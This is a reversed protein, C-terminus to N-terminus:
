KKAKTLFLYYIYTKKIDNFVLLDEMMELYFALKMSVDSYIENVMVRIWDLKESLREFDELYLFYLGGGEEEGQIRWLVKKGEVLDNTLIDAIISIDNKNLIPNWTLSFFILKAM